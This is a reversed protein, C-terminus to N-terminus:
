SMSYNVKHDEKVEDWWPCTVTLKGGWWTKMSSTQHMHEQRGELSSVHVNCEGNATTPSTSGQAFSGLKNTPGPSVDYLV